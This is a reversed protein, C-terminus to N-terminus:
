EIPEAETIIYKLANDVFDRIAKVDNNHNDQDIGFLVYDNNRLKQARMSFKHLNDSINELQVQLAYLEESTM